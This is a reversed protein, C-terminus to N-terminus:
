GSREILANIRGLYAKNQSPKSMHDIHPDLQKLEKISELFDINGSIFLIPVGADSARIHHYVDMGNGKGPLIYDLSVCDYDNRDFLSIAEAANTALDVEHCSPESTLVHFQIDSIVQEDEVLLVKKERAFGMRSLDTKESVTLRKKLVPLGIRVTTGAGLETELSVTGRHMNIYKKVNAMGYGTGKIDKRYSGAVDKSGKLTFAPEWIKELYPEPIGCGNDSIELFIHNERFFSRIVIRPDPSRSVAHIANQLLNVLAHEIMGPDALLEPLDDGPERALCIGELDKKLLSLVLSVKEEIKFFEQKLEQDKAFAVLNKTLNQGRVTLNYILKLAERTKEHPCDLLSLEANGMIAGLVNNFDHSIKGAIQGVLAMKKQEDSMKLATIKEKEAQKLPNLDVDICFMEKGLLTEVMVHSSYVAVKQGHKDMLELESAPIHEDFEMWQRIREKVAERKPPPIILDELRKGMAEERTYGYLKESAKNWFTVRRERDYGRISVEVVDNIMKRVRGRIGTLIAETRKREQIERRLRANIVMMVMGWTCALVGIGGAIALAMWADSKKRDPDYLFGDLSTDSPLLGLRHYTNAIHRWRAPNMHGIQVLHPLMSKRIADAEWELHDREKQCGYTVKLLHVIDGPHALAFEWGRLSAALFARVQEPHRDTQAETTFLCDNYFDVGATRPSLIGPAIGRAELYWPENTLYASVADTRGQILDNIDYTHDLREFASLAIGESMLASLIEANQQGPVLMVRKGSLDQFSSIGSAKRTLLISPSHQFIPALVVFPEGRSRHLLLESGAIGYQARGSLIEERAFRGKGGERIEVELGAERYFGQHLAAYYGAFQFQHMWALQLVVKETDAAARVTMPALVMSWVLVGALLPAIRGARKRCRKFFGVCTQSDLNKM